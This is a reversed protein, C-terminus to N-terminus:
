EGVQEALIRLQFRERTHGGEIDEEVREIRSQYSGEHAETCCFSVDIAIDCPVTREVASLSRARCYEFAAM